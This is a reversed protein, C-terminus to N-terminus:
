HGGAPPTAEKQVLLQLGDIGVVKVSEGPAISVGNPARAQWLAGDVFVLGSPALAERARGLAGIMGERGTVPPRRRAAIVKRMVLGFFSGVAVVMLGILVLNVGEDLFDTNILFFAGLAMSIIGGTTLVGHTPATLDVIFLILAFALLIVGALNLPLNELASFALVAAIVGVVGPLILGPHTVEFAIALVALSLLLVAINPDALVHLFAAIGSMPVEVVRAGATALTFSRGLSRKEVVRGDLDRLLSRLDRSIFDVVHLEVAEDATVNVSKRVGQEAWDANRGHDRALARIYAAADNEIKTNLTDADSGSPQPSGGGGLTVHHASGINTGPAMVAVDAAETIFLGASAARAGSPAVWVVVALPAKLIARNIGRMSTDLGGPTDMRIIVAQAHHQSARDLTRALYNETIPDVTGTLTAVEIQGAPEAALAAPVGVALAAALAVLLRAFRGV